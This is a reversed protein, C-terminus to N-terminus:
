FAADILEGLRQLGAAIDTGLHVRLVRRGREALVAFDGRAQAAEVLGFTYNHGPVPLDEEPDATLQLFVGSNPGGKYAQGTSHLFRPGFGLCTAVKRAARITSRMEQLRGSNAANRELYALLALYDGPGTRALHAKIIAAVTVEDGCAASLEDANRADTYLKLVEDGVLLTEEPLAGGAECAETLKRTEIKSAEVDPQDFPNVDLVSGAVATAMEWRFLEQGLNYVDPLRIRVVPQGAAELQEIAQEQQPDAAGDLSIYVFLRDGGYVDPAGPPEGDVPIVGKGQKGTSEAVLQELWAGISALRPAAIITLKDRGVSAAVGMICGLVVGPNGSVPQGAACAAVMELTSELFRRCDVGILAAPVMGFNSLASFRGGVDPQGPFIRRFGENGAIVELSSEPDTIAVFHSAAQDAGVTEVMRQFFYAKLINPELTSGSKSAVVFLTRSLDVAQQVTKVQAPDTSDLVQLSPFGPSSGYTDRIVEPAMSSGGMGLLVVHRFGSDVVDQAFAQLEASQDLSEQAITLWGLWHAEDSGTWVAADREWLRDMRATAQWDDLVQQVAAGLDAPLTYTLENMM